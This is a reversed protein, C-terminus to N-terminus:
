HRDFLNFLAFRMLEDHIKKPLKALPENGKIDILDLRAGHTIIIQAFKKYWAGCAGHLHLPTQGLENQADPQAGAILLVEAMKLTKPTIKLAIQHLPTNGYVDRINPNAGQTLLYILMELNRNIITLTLPSLGDSLANINAGQAIHRAITQPICNNQVARLFAADIANQAEHLAGQVKSSNLVDATTNLPGELAESLSRKHYVVQQGLVNSCLYAPSAFSIKKRKM